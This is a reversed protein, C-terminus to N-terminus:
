TFLDAIITNFDVGNKQFIAMFDRELVSKTAFLNNFYHKCLINPDVGRDILLQILNLKGKKNMDHPYKKNQMVINLHNDTIEMGNELLLQIMELNTYNIASDLVKPILFNVGREMLFDLTKKHKYEVAVCLINSENYCIDAGADLLFIMKDLNETWCAGEFIDNISIKLGSNLVYKIEEISTKKDSGLNKFFHKFNYSIPDLLQIKQLENELRVLCLEHIKKPSYEVDSGSDESSEYM